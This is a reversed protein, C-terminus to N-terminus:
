EAIVNKFNELAKEPNTQKFIASGAIIIDAGAEVVENINKKNIGGDVAIKVSPNNKNIMTSLRNIKNITQPIFKQGGFGPNVSMILILDLESLLYKVETLPTAPNLALGAKCDYGKIQQILRHVHKSSENHVTILDSGAEAFDQIYKEPSDIMLHTDFKLSTKERISKILGPGFTINPVFNGDM